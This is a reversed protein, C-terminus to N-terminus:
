LADAVVFTSGGVYIVDSESAAAWAAHMALKVSDYTTGGRGKNIAMENVRAADMARQSTFNCYYFFANVPFLEIINEVDKDNVFGLVFHIQTPRLSQVQKITIKLGDRNHATDLITLPQNKIIQWRGLLSTNQLVNEIGRSIDKESISFKSKLVDIATLVTGINKEQYKGMLPSLIGSAHGNILIESKQNDQSKSLEVQYKEFAFHIQANNKVAQKRFVDITERHYEGIVVPTNNKIIGAKETAIKPLSDGLFQMHDWGINTIVSLEPNIINTSDLRGGMGVEIIAVDVNNDAFYCFALAVSMEFFSPKLENLFKQNQAVFDVVYDKDIFVGNVKIRERYDKLHPSTYLGTKFGAEMMVSALMHSTSGKGNTGAVQVSKFRKHPFGFHEDLAISNNLNPKYASQGIRQYMPLQAYLWEVTEEYTM